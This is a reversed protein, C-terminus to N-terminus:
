GTLLPSADSLPTWQRRRFRWGDESSELEDHSVTVIDRTVGDHDVGRQSIVVRARAHRGDADVDLHVLPATELLWRWHARELDWQARLATEGEVDHGNSLKWSADLSWTALWREVDAHTVADCWQTILRQVEREAVLLVGPSAPAPASGELVDLAVGLESSAAVRLHHLLRERALVGDHASFQVALGDVLGSLREAAAAPDICRFEGRDVGFRVLQELVRTSELDLEQSIRRMLPNRLAEGWADIWLKWELHESGEPICDLLWRDLQDIATPAAALQTALQELDKRAFHAFAEALLQEKSEFHYHVLSTSVDLQTAVDSIRTGAFGREIVVACTAELIEARRMEVTQKKV